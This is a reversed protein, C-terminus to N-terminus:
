RCIESVADRLREIMEERDRKLTSNASKLLSIEEQMKAKTQEYERDARDMTKVHSQNVDELSRELREKSSNSTALSRILENNERHSAHLEGLKSKLKSEYSKLKSEYETKVAALKSEYETKTAALKSEYQQKLTAELDVLADNSTSTSSVVLANSSGTSTSSVVPANSTTSTANGENGLTSTSISLGARSDKEFLEEMFTDTNIPARAGDCGSTLAHMPNKQRPRRNNSKVYRDKSRRINEALENPHSAM